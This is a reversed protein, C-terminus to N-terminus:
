SHNLGLVRSDSSASNLFLLAPLYQSHNFVVIPPSRKRSLLTATPGEILYLSFDIQVPEGEANGVELVHLLEFVIVDGVKRGGTYEQDKPKFYAIHNEIKFKYGDAPEAKVLLNNKPGDYKIIMIPYPRVTSETVTFKPFPYEDDDLLTMADEQIGNPSVPVSVTAPSVLHSVSMSRSMQEQRKMELQATQQQQLLQLMQEYQMLQARLQDREDVVSQFDQRPANNNTLFGMSDIGASTGDSTHDSTSFLGSNSGFTNSGSGTGFEFLKGGIDESSNLQGSLFASDGLLQSGGQVDM